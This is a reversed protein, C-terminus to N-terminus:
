AFVMQNVMGRDRMDYLLRRMEVMQRERSKTLAAEVSGQDANGNITVTTPGINIGASGPSNALRMLLNAQQRQNFFVEGANARVITKDGTQSSGEVIGGQALAQSAIIGAQVAGLGGVIGAPALSWPFPYAALTKVVASATDMVAQMFSIQQGRKAISKQKKEAGEDIKEMEKSLAVRGKITSNALKKRRDVDRNLREEDKQAFYDNIASWGSLVETATNALKEYTIKHAEIKKDNAAKRKEKEKKEAEEDNAVVEELGKKRIAAITAATQTETSIQLTAKAAQLNTETEM